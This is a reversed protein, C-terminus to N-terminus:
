QMRGSNERKMFNPDCYRAFPPQHHHSPNGGKEMFESTHPMVNFKMYSNTVASIEWHGLKMLQWQLAGHQKDQGFCGCITCSVSHVFETCVTNSNIATM